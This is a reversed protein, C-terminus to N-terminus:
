FEEEETTEMEPVSQDAMAEGVDGEEVGFTDNIADVLTDIDAQDIQYREQLQGILDMLDQM